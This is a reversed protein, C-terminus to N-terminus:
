YKLPPTIVGLNAINYRMREWGLAEQIEPSAEALVRLYDETGEQPLNHIAGSVTYVFCQLGAEDAYQCIEESSLENDVVKDNEPEAKLYIIVPRLKEPPAAAINLFSQRIDSQVIAMAQDAVLGTRPLADSQIAEWTKRWTEWFDHWQEPFDGDDYWGARSYMEVAFRGYSSYSAGPIRSVLEASELQRRQDPQVGEIGAPTMNYIIAPVQLSSELILREAVDTGINGGASYGVISVEDVGRTTAREVIQDSINTHDLPANAYNVSWLRGDILQQFAVGQHEALVDANNTGLGNLFILASDKSLEDIPDGQFNVEVVANNAEKYGQNADSAYAVVPQLAALLAIAALNKRARRGLKEIEKTIADRETVSERSQLM